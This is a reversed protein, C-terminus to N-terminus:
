SFIGQTVLSILFMLPTQFMIQYEVSLTDLLYFM